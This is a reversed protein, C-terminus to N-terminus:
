KGDKINEVGEASYYNLDNLYLPNNCKSYGVLVGDVFDYSGINYVSYTLTEYVKGNIVQRAWQIPIRRKYLQFIEAKTMGIEPKGTAICGSLMLGLPIATIFLRILKKV